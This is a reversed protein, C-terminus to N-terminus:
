LLQLAAAPHMEGPDLYDAYSERLEAMVTKQLYGALGEPSEARSSKVARCSDSPPSGIWHLLIKDAELVGSEDARFFLLSFGSCVTFFRKWPYVFSINLHYFIRM